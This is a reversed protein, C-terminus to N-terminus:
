RGHLLLSQSVPSGPRGRPSSCGQACPRPGAPDPAGAAQRRPRALWAARRTQRAVPRPRIAAPRPRECRGPGSPPWGCAAAAQAASRPQGGAGSRPRCSPMGPPGAGSRPLSSGCWSSSRKSASSPTGPPGAGSRPLWSGARLPASAAELGVLAAVFLLHAAESLVPAPRLLLQAAQLGLFVAPALGIAVDGILNSRRLPLGTAM